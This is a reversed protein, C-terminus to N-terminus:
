QVGVSQSRDKNRSYMCRHKCLLRAACFVFIPITYWVVMSTGGYRVVM